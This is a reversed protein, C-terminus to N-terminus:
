FGWLVADTMGGPGRHIPEDPGFLWRAVNRIGRRVREAKAEPQRHQTEADQQQGGAPQQPQDETSEQQQEETHQQRRQVSPQQIEQPEQPPNPRPPNVHTDRRQNEHTKYSLFTGYVFCSPYSKGYNVLIEEGAKVPRLLTVSMYNPSDSDAWARANACRGCAHNIHSAISYIHVRNGSTDASAYTKVFGELQRRQSRSLSTETSLGRLGAFGHQLEDRTQRSLTTWALATKHHGRWYWRPKECSMLPTEYIIRHDAAMDLRAILGCRPDTTVRRIFVADLNERPPEEVATATSKSTVGPDTTLEM